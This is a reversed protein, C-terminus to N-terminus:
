KYRLELNGFVDKKWVKWEKKIGKFKEKLVYAGWGQVDLRKWADNVFQVFRTKSGINWWVLFIKVWDVITNKLMLPCHYSINRELIHQTSGSWKSLWERNVLFKNIRSMAKGNPRFLTFKRGELPINRIEYRYHISWVRKEGEMGLNDVVKDNRESASRICNFDGVLCWIESSSSEKKKDGGM